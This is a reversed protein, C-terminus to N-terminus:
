SETKAENSTRKEKKAKNRFQSLAMDGPIRVFQIQEEDTTNRICWLDVVTILIKYIIIPGPFEPRRKERSFPGQGRNHWSKKGFTENMDVINEEACRNKAKGYNQAEQPKPKKSMTLSFFIKPTKRVRITLYKRSVDYIKIM